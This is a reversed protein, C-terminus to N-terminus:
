INKAERLSWMHCRSLRVCGIPIQLSIKTQRQDVCSLGSGRQQRLVTLGSRGAARATIIMAIPQAGDPAALSRAHGGDLAGRSSGATRPSARRDTPCTAPMCCPIVKEPVLRPKADATRGAGAGGLRCLGARRPPAAASAGAGASLTSTRLQPHCRAGSRSPRGLMEPARANGGSAGDAPASGRARRCHHCCSLERRQRQRSRSAARLESGVLNPGEEWLPAPSAHQGSHALFEVGCYRGADHGRIYVCRATIVGTAESRTTRSRAGVRSATVVACDPGWLRRAEVAGM